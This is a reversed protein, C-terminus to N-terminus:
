WDVGVGFAILAGGIFAGVTVCVPAGPGCLLGAAAGGAIGGGIGASTIAIEKGAADFKNESTSVTYVSIAISIFLLSRGARSLNKMMTTVKPNSKGASKVIESYVNNQQVKTLKGFTVKKGYLQQSKRAVLENLNKGERKLQQAMALGVPSSRSRIVEMIANRTEQAQTAAFSWSIKGTSANAKLDSSMVLIQRSYAKRAEADITLHAGVNAVEAQLGRIAAEFSKRDEQNKEQM